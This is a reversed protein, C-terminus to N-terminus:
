QQAIFAADTRAPAKMEPFTMRHQWVGKQTCKDCGYCAMHGNTSMVFVRAPYYCVIARVTLPWKKGLCEFGDCQLEDIDAVFQELYEALDQPKKTASFVGVHFPGGDKMVSVVALIPWVQQSSINFRPLGDIDVTLHLTDADPTFLGSSLCPRIPCERPTMLLTMAGSPLEPDREKLMPPLNNLASHPI